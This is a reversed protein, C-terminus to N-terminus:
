STATSCACIRSQLESKVTSFKRYYSCPMPWFLLSCADCTLLLCQLASLTTLIHTTSLFFLFFIFSLWCQSTWGLVQRDYCGQVAVVAKLFVQERHSDEQLSAITLTTVVCRHSVGKLNPAGPASMSGFSLSSTASFFHLSLLTFPLAGGESAGSLHGQALGKVGVAGTSSSLPCCILRYSGQATLIHLQPLRILINSVFLVNSETFGGQIFLPIFFHGYSLIKWTCHVAWSGTM